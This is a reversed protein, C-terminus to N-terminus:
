LGLLEEVLKNLAGVLANLGGGDLLGAISCLLNGLLNGPGAQANIDLVVKDLHVVLGLLNLDLPGLELHLIDCTGLPTGLIPLVVTRVISTLVGTTINRLTGVLTAFAVLNGNQQGFGTINLVGTFTQVADGAVVPITLAGKPPAAHVAPVATTFLMTAALLSALLRRRSPNNM